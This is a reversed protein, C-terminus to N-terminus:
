RFFFRIKQIYVHRDRDKSICFPITKVQTNHDYDKAVTRCNFYIFLPLIDRISSERSPNSLSSSSVDSRRRRHTMRLDQEDDDNNEHIHVTDNSARDDDNDSEHDHGNTEDFKYPGSNNSPMDLNSNPLNNNSLRDDIELSSRNQRFREEDSCYYFYDCDPSVRRFYKSIIEFFKETLYNQIHKTTPQCPNDFEFTRCSLSLSLSFM